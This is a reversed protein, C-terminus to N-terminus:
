LELDNITEIKELERIVELQMQQELESLNLHRSKEPFYYNDVFVRFDQSVHTITESLKSFFVADKLMIDDKNPMLESIRSVNESFSSHISKELELAQAHLDYYKM